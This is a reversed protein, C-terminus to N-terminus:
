RAADLDKSSTKMRVCCHSPGPDLCAHMGTQGLGELVGQLLHLNMGCVLEPHEQALTHFPCNHLVIDGEALHPEFGHDQLVGLLVDTDIHVSQEPQKQNEPQERGASRERAMAQGFDHAHRELVERPTEGTHQAQALAGALLLGALDYQRPPLSVAVEDASRQYLKAPRGAGPGSRGSRRAFSVSLLGRAALRDLHFAVTRRPVGLADAVDDRSLPLSQASVHDYIRRRTPEDLSAVAAVDAAEGSRSGVSEDSIVSHTEPKVVGGGGTSKRGTM